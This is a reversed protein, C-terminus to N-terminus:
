EGTRQAIRRVSRAYDRVGGRGSRAKPYHRIVTALLLRHMGDMRSMRVGLTPGSEGRRRGECLRTVSGQVNLWTKSGPIRLSLRVPQGLHAPTLARVRVGDWSIDVTEDALLLDTTECRLVCETQVRHRPHQRRSSATM